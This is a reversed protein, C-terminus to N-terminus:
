APLQAFSGTKAFDRGAAAAMIIAWGSTILNVGALLGLAWAASMPWAYILIGAMILDAVGSLLLWGWGSKLIDRYALSGAIQFVGEAIFLATLVLSLSAAGEAPKSVLIIGAAVSLAATVLTWLFAAIDRASFLAVLGMVGSILFLWGIFIDVAFTATVPAAIALIGLILMLVGEFMLLRWHKRLADAIARQMVSLSPELTAM